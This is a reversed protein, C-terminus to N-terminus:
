SIIYHGNNEFSKSNHHDNQKKFSQITKIQHLSWKNEVLRMYSQIEKM